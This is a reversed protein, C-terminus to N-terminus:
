GYKEEMEKLRARANEREHQGTNPHDILARLAAKKKDVHSSAFIESEHHLSNFFSEQYKYSKRQENAFKNFWEWFSGDPKFSSNTTTYTTNTYYESSTTERTPQWVGNIKVYFKKNSTYKKVM